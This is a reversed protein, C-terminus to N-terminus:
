SRRRGLYGYATIQFCAGALGAYMAGRVGWGPILWAGVAATILLIMVAAVLQSWYRESATLGAGLLSSTNGLIGVGVLGTVLEATVASQHGDVMTVLRVGWFWAGALM